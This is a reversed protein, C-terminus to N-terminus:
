KPVAGKQWQHLLITDTRKSNDETRVRLLNTSTDIVIITRELANIKQEHSELIKFKPAITNDLEAKLRIVQRELEHIEGKLSIIMNFFGLLGAVIISLFIGIIKDWDWKVNSWSM